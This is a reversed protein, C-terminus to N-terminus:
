INLKDFETTAVTLVYVKRAGNQKLIKSCHDSTSGTTLVDDIILINKNKIDKKNNVKFANELNKQREIYSLNTQTNTNKIRELIDLRVNIDILKSLERALLEAQNYGRLKQKQIHLPVPIIYSINTFEDKNKYYEEKLFHAFYKALWKQNNYKFNKITNAVENEYVLPARAFDFNRKYKKCFLCFDSKSEIPSGCKKCIKKTKKIGNYCKDCVAFINDKVENGCFICSFNDPMLKDWISSFYQKIDELYKNEM